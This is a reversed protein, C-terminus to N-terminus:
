LHCRKDVVEYILSASFDTTKETGLDDIILHRQKVIEWITRDEEIATECMRIKRILDQVKLFLFNGRSCHKAIAIALYTKGTGIEGCIYLGRKPYGIEKAKQRVKEDVNKIDAKEFITM